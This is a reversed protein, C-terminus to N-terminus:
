RGVASQISNLREQIAKVGPSFFHREIAITNGTYREIRLEKAVPIFNLRQTFNVMRKIEDWDFRYEVIRYRGCWGNRPVRIAIGEPGARFYCDHALASLLRGLGGTIFCFAALAIGLGVVYMWWSPLDGPDTPTMDGGATAWLTIGAMLGLLLGFVLRVLGLLAVRGRSYRAVTEMGTADLIEM